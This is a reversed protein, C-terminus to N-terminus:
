LNFTNGFEKSTGFHESQEQHHFLVFFTNKIATAIHNRITAIFNKLSMRVLLSYTLPSVTAPIPAPMCLSHKLTQSLIVFKQVFFAQWALSFSRLIFYPHIKHVISFKYRPPLSHHFGQQCMLQPDKTSIWWKWIAMFQIHQVAANKAAKSFSKSINLTLFHFNKPTKIIKNLRKWHQM